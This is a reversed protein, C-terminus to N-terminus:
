KLQIKKKLFCIIAGLLSSVFTIVMYKISFPYSFIMPFTLAILGFIFPLLFKVNRKSFSTWYSCFAGIVPLIIGVNLDLYETLLLSDIFYKGNVFVSIFFLISISFSLATMILRTVSKMIVRFDDESNSIKEYNKGCGECNGIHEEVLHCSAESAIGEVYLPYLDKIIECNIKM